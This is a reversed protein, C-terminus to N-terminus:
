AFIRLSLRFFDIRQLHNSSPARSFTGRESALNQFVAPMVEAIAAVWSHKSILQLNESPRLTPELWAFTTGLESRSIDTLRERM